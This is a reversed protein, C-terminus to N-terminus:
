CGRGWGEEGREWVRGPTEKIKIVLPTSQKKLACLMVRLGLLLSCCLVARLPVVGGEWPLVSCSDSEPCAGGGGLLGGPVRRRKVEM